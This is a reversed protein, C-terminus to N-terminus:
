LRTSFPMLGKWGSLTKKTPTPSKTPIGPKPAAYRQNDGRLLLAAELGHNKLAKQAKELREKRMRNFNIREEWDVALRGFSM